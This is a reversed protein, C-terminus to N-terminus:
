RPNAQKSILMKRSEERGYGTVHICEQDTRIVAYSTQDTDVMGKLTLYHIGNKMGYGGQHNHGNIYAKVCPFEELLSIIEAANWLNHPNEPFVPFHCFVMVKENNRQAKGLINRLWSRQRNGIAGNWKPAQIKNRIYYETAAEYKESQEPYAHFSIDNGDLVVFRWGKVEFDYYTSRLGLKEPVTKKLADAVAFDHNGLVHYKPVHLQNYVPILVDFNRYDRDIFDGLHVVYELDMTNFDAVCNKLKDKSWAYQRAGKAPADCYQCDAIAGFSLGADNEAKLVSCGSTLLLAGFSLTLLCAM